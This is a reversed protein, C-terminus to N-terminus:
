YEIRSGVFNSLITKKLLLFNTFSKTQKILKQTFIQQLKPSSFKHSSKPTTKNNYTGKNHLNAQRNITKPAVVLCGDGLGAVLKNIKWFELTATVFFEEQTVAIKAIMIEKMSQTVMMM